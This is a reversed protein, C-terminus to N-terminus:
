APTAHSANNILHQRVKIREIDPFGNISLIEFSIVAVYDNTKWSLDGGHVKAWLSKFSDRATACAMSPDNSLYNRFMLRNVADNEVGELLAQEETIDQLREIRVGTNILWLRSFAKPLYRGAIVKGTNLTKRALTTKLTSVPILRVHHKECFFLVDDSGDNSIDTQFDVYFLRQDPKLYIRHDERVWFLDGRKGFIKTADQSPNVIRRTVKKRGTIISNVLMKNFTLPKEKYDM